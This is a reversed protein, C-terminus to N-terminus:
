EDKAKQHEEILANRDKELGTAEEKISADALKTKYYDDFVKKLDITGIKPEAALASFAMCGLCLSALLKLQITKM